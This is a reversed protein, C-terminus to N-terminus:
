INGYGPWSLMFLWGLVTIALISCLAVMFGNKFLVSSDMGYSVPIARISVPLMYATNVGVTVILLYPIPDLGMTQVISQVIPIAIAAAATNSSIETMIVSFVTFVFITEIGGSLPLLTIGEALKAAAGTETVLDGLALGGGFLILLGWMIHKETMEWDLLPRGSDNKILFYLIAFILFVYAPKLAPFIDAYLPRVFALVTGTIFMVLSIIESRSMPGLEKYQSRFYEKSDALQKTPVPLHLLFVLNVLILLALFPLFRVFWDVYMFEHGTIKELYSITVLNAAGGLPSGVGGIGAGWAIALLIPIAVKSSRISKEGIFELMSIAVPVMLTCVVVNPLFVSLLASVTLWVTIQQRMSSGIYCLTKLALRKDLGTATWTMCMIDAGLILVIIESFYQSVIHQMPVLDFLTNVAIPLLATVAIHVPRMIWWIGMWVVTGLAASQKFGAADGGLWTILAFLVPGAWMAVRVRHHLGSLRIMM